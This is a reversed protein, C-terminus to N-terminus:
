IHWVQLQGRIGILFLLLLLLAQLTDNILSIWRRDFRDVLVGIFPSCVLGPLTSIIFMYAVASPSGTLLLALWSNAVAQMNNGIWSLLHGGFFWCYSRYRFVLLLRDRHFMQLFESM